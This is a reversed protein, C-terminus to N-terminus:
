RGVPILDAITQINTRYMNSSDPATFSSKPLLGANRLKKMPHRTIVMRLIGPFFRKVLVSYKEIGGVLADCKGVAVARVIENSCAEPSIGGAVSEQMKGNITGNGKLAHVTIDTKVLGATIMTVHIGDSEYEARLSEFFGHLAHKSASYASLKPVGFKGCLSSTVVFCGQKKERMYPLLAKSLAVPSFFNINMQKYVMGLDTLHVMDRIAMGANLFVFDINQFVNWATRAFSEIKNIDEMDFPLIRTRDPYTCDAKVLELNERNRATLIVIAGMSNLKQSLAKGIGSSAGTVLCIKNNFQNTKM